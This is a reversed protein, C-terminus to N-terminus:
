DLENNNPKKKYLLLHVLERCHLLISSLVPSLDKGSLSTPYEQGM